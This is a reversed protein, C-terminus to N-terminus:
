FKYPSDLPEISCSPFRCGTNLVRDIRCCIFRDAAYGTYGSIIPKNRDDIILIEKSIQIFWNLLAVALSYMRSSSVEKYEEILSDRCNGAGVRDDPILWTGLALLPIDVGNPLKITKAYM